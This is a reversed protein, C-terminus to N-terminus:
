HCIQVGKYSKRNTNLINDYTRVRSRHSMYVGKLTLDLSVYISEECSKRSTNLFLM